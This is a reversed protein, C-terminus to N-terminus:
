FSAFPVMMPSRKKFGRFRIRKRTCEDLRKERRTSCTNWFRHFSVQSLNLPLYQIQDWGSLWVRLGFRIGNAFTWTRLRNTRLHLSADFTTSRQRTIRTWLTGGYRLAKTRAGRAEIEGHRAHRQAWTNGRKERRADTKGREDEARSTAKRRERERCLPEKKLRIVLRETAPGDDGNCAENERKEFERDREFDGEFDTTALSPFPHYHRSEGLSLFPLCGPDLNLCSPLSPSQARTREREIEREERHASYVKHTPIAALLSRRARSRFRRARRGASRDEGRRETEQWRRCGFGEFPWCGGSTGRIKALSREREARSVM